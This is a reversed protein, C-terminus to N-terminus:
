VKSYRYAGKINQALYQGQSGANMLEEQVHQPVDFYQYVGGNLFEIELTQSNPDYGIAAINSSSVTQRNM